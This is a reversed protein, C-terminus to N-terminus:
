DPQLRLDRGAVWGERGDTTRVRWWSHGDAPQPGELLAM